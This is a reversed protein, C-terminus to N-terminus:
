IMKKSRTIEYDAKDFKNKMLRGWCEGEEVERKRWEGDGMGEGEGRGGKRRGREREAAGSVGILIKDAATGDRERYLLKHIVEFSDRGAETMNLDHRCDTGKNYLVCRTVKM